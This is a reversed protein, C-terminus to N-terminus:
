LVRSLVNGAGVADSQQLVTAGLSLVQVYGAGHRGNLYPSNSSPSHQGRLRSAQLYTLSLMSGTTKVRM